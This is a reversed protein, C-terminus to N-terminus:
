PTYDPITTGGETVLIYPNEYFIERFEQEIQDEKSLGSPECLLRGDRDVYQNFVVNGSSDLVDTGFGLPDKYISNPPATRCLADIDAQVSSGDSTCPPRVPVWAGRTATAAHYLHNPLFWPESSSRNAFRARMDAAAQREAQFQADTLGSTPPNSSPFFSLNQFLLTNISQDYQSNVLGDNETFKDVGRSNQRAEADTQCGSQDSNGKLLTHPAGSNGFLFINLAIGQSAFETRALEIMDETALLNYDGRTPSGCANHLLYESQTAVAADFSFRPTRNPNTDGRRDMDGPQDQSPCNAVGDTFLVLHSKAFSSNQSNSFIQLSKRMIDPLASGTYPHPNTGYDFKSAGSFIRPFLM